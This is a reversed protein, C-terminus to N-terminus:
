ILNQEIRNHESINYYLLEVYITTDNAKNHEIDNQTM